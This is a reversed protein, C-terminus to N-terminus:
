CLDSLTSKFCPVLNPFLNMIVRNILHKHTEAACNDILALRGNQSLIVTCLGKRRRLLFPLLLYISEGVLHRSARNHDKFCSFTARQSM